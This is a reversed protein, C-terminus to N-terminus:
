VPLKLFLIKCIIPSWSLVKGMNPSNALINRFKHLARLDLSNTPEDLILAKPDHVLAMAILVQRAEGTSMQNLPQECLASIGLFSITEAAKKRMAPTVQHYPHLGISGFFSSLVLEYGTIPRTCFNQLDGTIIGSLVTFQDPTVYCAVYQQNRKPEPTENPHLLHVYGVGRLRGHRATM